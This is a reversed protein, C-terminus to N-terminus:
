AEKDLANPRVGEIERIKTTTNRDHNKIIELLEKDEDSLTNVTIINLTNTNGEKIAYGENKGLRDTIHKAVDTQIRLLNTDVKGQADEVVYDLTKDLSKEAKSLMNMRRVKDRFWPETTISHAHTVSYGAKIASQEGNSFTDSRPDVYLEWCLKQRPDAVFQNAGYPNTEAM